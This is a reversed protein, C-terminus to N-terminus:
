ENSVWTETIGAIRSRFLWNQRGMWEKVSGKDGPLSNPQSITRAKKLKIKYFLEAKESAPLIGPM